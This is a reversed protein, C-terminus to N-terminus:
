PVGLFDCSQGVAKGVLVFLDLSQQVVLLVGEAGQSGGVRGFDVRELFQVLRPDFSKVLIEVAELGRELLGLRLEKLRLLVVLLALLDLQQVLLQLQPDLGQLAADLGLVGLTLDVM